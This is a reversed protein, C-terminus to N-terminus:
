KLQIHDIIQDYVVITQWWLTLEYTLNYWFAMYIGRCTSGFIAKQPRDTITYKIMIMKGVANALPDTM